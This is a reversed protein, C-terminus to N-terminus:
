IVLCWGPNMNIGDSADILDDWLSKGLQRMVIQQSLWIPHLVDIEEKWLVWVHYNSDGGHMSHDFGIERCLTLLKNLRGKPELIAVVPVEDRAKAIRQDSVGDNDSDVPVQEMTVEGKKVSLVIGKLSTLNGWAPYGM